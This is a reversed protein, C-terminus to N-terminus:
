RWKGIAHIHIWGNLGTVATPSLISATGITLGNGQAITELFGSGSGQIMTATIFPMSSFQAAFNGLSIRNSYFLSGWALNVNTSYWLSKTCIQTGNDFRIYAGDATSGQQIIVHSNKDNYGQWLYVATDVTINTPKAANVCTYSPNNQGFTTCLRFRFTTSDNLQKFWFCLRNSSDFFANFTAPKYAAAYGSMNFFGSNYIYGNIKIDIPYKTGYSNGDVYLEFMTNVSKLINTTVLFGNTYHYYGEGDSYEKQVQLAGSSHLLGSSRIGNAILTGDVNAAGKISMNGGITAAGKVKLASNVDSFEGGVGVGYKNVFFSPLNAGIKFTETSNASTFGTGDNYVVTATYTGDGNLSSFGLNSFDAQSIPLPVPAGGLTSNVYTGKTNINPISSESKVRAQIIATTDTRTLKGLILYPPRYYHLNQGTSVGDASILGYSSKARVMFNLTTLKDVTSLVLNYTTGSQNGLSIYGGGDLRYFIDYSISEGSAGVIASWSVRVRRTGNPIMYRIKTDATTRWINLSDPTDDTTTITPKPTGPPSQMNVSSTKTDSASSGYSNMTKLTFNINGKYSNNKVYNILESKLIYPGSSPASSVIPITLTTATTDGRYLKIGSCALTYRFTRDSVQNSAGSWDIKISATNYMIAPTTALTAKTMTNKTILGGVASGPSWVSMSDYCDVVYKLTTGAGYGSVNHTYSRTSTNTRAIESYGGNNVSIRVRYGALNSDTDTAAPWSMAISGQNEVIYKNGTTGDTTVSGSIVPATNTSSVGFSANAGGDWGNDIHSNTTFGVNVSTSSTTGVNVHITQSYSRWGNNTNWSETGKISAISGYTSNVYPQWDTAYGYWSPYSPNGGCKFQVTVNISRTSGSGGVQEAYLYYELYVTGGNKYSGNKLLAM